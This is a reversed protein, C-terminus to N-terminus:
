TLLNDRKSKSGGGRSRFMGWFIFFIVIGAVIIIGWYPASTFSLTLIQFLRKFFGAEPVPALAVLPLTAFQKGDVVIRLTGVQQNQTLPAFIRQPIDKELQAAGAQEQSVTIRSAELVGLPVEGVTGKWVPAALLAKHAQVLEITKFNRFGYNLLKLAENERVTHSKAGMIVAIFRDKGRHATAILHYGSEKIWGTKLGDVSADRWLLKNRNQQTINNFTMEKISHIELAHPYDKLYCYSLHAMDRATTFQGEAPLGHCNKFSSNTLGLLTAKNNMSEVFKEEIGAIAEALAVCADNGSVVAIGKILDEVSVQMNVDLWMQSGGHKWANESITIMDTPKIRNDGIAEYILHLTMIKILSAPAIKEDPNQEFVITGTLGNILV